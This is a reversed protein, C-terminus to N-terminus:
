LAVDQYMYTAGGDLGHPRFPAAQNEGYFHEGLMGSCGSRRAQSPVGPVALPAGNTHHVKQRSCSQAAQLAQRGAGHRSSGQTSHWSYTGPPLRRDRTLLLLPAQKGHTTDSQMGSSHASGPSLNKSDALGPPVSMRLPWTSAARSAGPVGPNRCTFNGRQRERTCAQLSPIVSATRILSRGNCAM